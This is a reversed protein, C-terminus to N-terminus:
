LLGGCKAPLQWITGDPSDEVTHALRAEFDLRRINRAGMSNMHASEVQCDIMHFDGRLLIDVLACLAVKSADPVRSFMSEGFFVRGLAIGYLGGVLAGDTNYVEISHACGSRHLDVYARTMQRGIWTGPGEARLQACAAIVASFNSDVALRFTNRRLTKRLSRSRHLECPFLVSRPDPTWWLVPQPEEFWPFIGRRYARLLTDQNLQGGVALLGNPEKLADVSPPFEGDPGIRRLYDM